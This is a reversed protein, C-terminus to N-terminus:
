QAAASAQSPTHLQKLALAHIQGKELEAELAGMAMRHRELRTKGEFVDSVIRVEFSSGCGGSTDTM